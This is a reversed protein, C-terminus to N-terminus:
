YKYFGVNTWGWVNNEGKGNSNGIAIVTGDFKVAVLRFINDWTGSWNIASIATINKEKLIESVYLQNQKYSDDGVGVLTGDKKLGVVCFRGNSLQSINQSNLSNLDELIRKPFALFTEDSKLGIICGDDASIMEIDKWEAFDLSDDTSVVTGDKKLGIIVDSNFVRSETTVCISKIDKWQLARFVDDSDDSSVVVTGDSKLGATTEGSASIAIINGWNAVDCGKEHGKDCASVVTGDAKLGVTFHEGADVSVIDKWKTLKCKRSDLNGAAVVTGDMKLAVTHYCSASIIQRNFKASIDNLKENTDSYGRSQLFLFYSNAYDGSNYLELARNYKNEKILEVNGIEELITYAEDYKKLELLDVANNLAANYKAKPVIIEVLLISVVVCIAAVSVIFSFALTKNKARKSCEADYQMLKKAYEADAYKVAFKFDDDSSFKKGSAALSEISDTKYRALMKGIYAEAKNEGDIVAARFFQEADNWQKLELYTYGRELGLTNNSPIVSEVVNGCFSCYESDNPIEKNCNKCIM